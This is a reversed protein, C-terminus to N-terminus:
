LGVIFGLHRMSQRMCDILPMFLQMSLQRMFQLMVRFFVSMTYTYLLHCQKTSTSSPLSLRCMEQAHKRRMRDRYRRHRGGNDGNSNDDSYRFISSTTFFIFYFCTMYMEQAHKRMTRYTGDRWWQRPQRQWTAWDFRTNIRRHPPPPLPPPADHDHDHHRGM